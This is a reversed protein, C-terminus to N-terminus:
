VYNNKGKLMDKKIKDNSVGYPTIYVYFNLDDARFFNIMEHPLNNKDFGYNGAYTNNIIITDEM